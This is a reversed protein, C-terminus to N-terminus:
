SPDEFGISFSRVDGPSLEVMAAAVASSDLGGSLFVGLPVDSVLELKVAQRLTSWLHEAQEAEPEGALQPDPTLDPTWYRREALCGHELTLYHGPRLKRVGAFISRPTPVYEYTLYRDLSEVDLSRPFGPFALLAKPESAFLLLGDHRAYYLPKIGVRDRALILRRRREDWLALGFMGNLRTLFADGFEEYAHVIVECDSATKFQHGRASLEARLSRYNYIEGNCVIQVTGDENALPQQGGAVDIISLRRMALGAAGLRVQGASDPGRHLMTAGMADLEGSQVM